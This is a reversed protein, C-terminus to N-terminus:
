WVGGMCLNTYRDEIHVYVEHEHTPFYHFILFIWHCTLLLLHQAIEKTEPGHVEQKKGAYVFCHSVLIVSKSVM